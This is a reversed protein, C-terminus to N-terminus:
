NDNIERARKIAKELDECDELDISYVSEECLIFDPINDVYGIRFKGFKDEDFIEWDKAELYDIQSTWSCPKISADKSCSLYIFGGSGTGETSVFLHWEKNKISSRRVKKGQKMQEVAELFNM